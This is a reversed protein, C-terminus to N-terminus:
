KFCKEMNVTQKQEVTAITDHIAGGHSILCIETIKFGRKKSMVSSCYGFTIVIGNDAIIKPLEDLLLKFHSNKNGKYLEMSKRVSYPPDIVVIHFKSSLAEKQWYRVFDLADMRYDPIVNSDLDVRIEHQSNLIRTAGCFLNLILGKNICYNYVWKYIKPAKFTYPNLPQQLYTFKINDM